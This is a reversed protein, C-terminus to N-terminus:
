GPMPLITPLEVDTTYWIAGFYDGIEENLYWNGPVEIDRWVGETGDCLYWSQRRGVDNQDIRYKWTGNLSIGRRDFIAHFM